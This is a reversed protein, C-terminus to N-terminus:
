FDGQKIKKYFRKKANKEALLIDCYNPYMSCVNLFSVTNNGQKEDQILKNNKDSQVRQYYRDLDDKNASIKEIIKIITEIHYPPIYALYFERTDEKNMITITALLKNIAKEISGVDKKILNVVKWFIYDECEKVIPEHGLKYIFGQIKMENAMFFVLKKFALLEDRDSIGYVEFLANFRKDFDNKNTTPDLNEDLIGSWRISKLGRRAM